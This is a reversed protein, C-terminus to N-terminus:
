LVFFIQGSSQNEYSRYANSWEPFYEDVVSLATDDDWLIFEWKPHMNRTRKVFYNFQAPIIREKSIFHITKPITDM